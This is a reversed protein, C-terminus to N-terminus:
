GTAEVHLIAKQEEANLARGTRDFLQVDRPKGDEWSFSLSLGGKVRLGKLEGCQWEPASPLAPLLRIRPRGDRDLESQVLMRLIGALAGFNGDIQFPPHNDLLNPLTSNLLINRVAEGAEDGRDLSAWFNIIWAQSWGTHGGGFSLRKRLTKEAAAALDPTRGPSISSGPFLGYLHSIHRHGKEVEEYEANWEMLSGDANLGPAKLHNLVYEFSQFDDGPYSRGEPDAAQGGSDRIAAGARICCSFLQTLIMSDMQCGQCFCGTRGDELRYSNEPSASPNLVLFPRGDQARGASESPELFDVFFLCAEHILYYYRALISVDQGYEYHEWIHTALWAAGLVWYSGPLWADQPAADGWFDTNHHVVYGRCGYMRRAVDKGNAYTRELLAFLPLECEALAAMNAPWYNMQANINVTYKSGWPPDMYCNWLGQLTLPLRGPERSGAIMLYRSFAAYLNVLQIDGGTRFRAFLGEVTPSGAQDAQGAPLGGQRGDTGAPRSGIHLEMRDWYQRYEETHRAFLLESARAVGERGIFDRMQSLREKLLPTWTNCRISAQYEDQSIRRNYQWARIDIFLLVDTCGDGELTFGQARISGDSALAGAGACFPIGHADELLIFGDEARISDCWIGRDLYARFNVKGKQSSRVRMFLMDDAASAWVTREFAAGDADRYDVRVCADDLDLCARYSDLCAQPTKHQPPFSFEIGPDDAQFFDIRLEGATQYAQENFNRGSLRRFALEQAEPIKGCRVLSRVEELGERASDNIRDQPGGSWIGEENLQIVEGTPHAKVMAGLRGNGLPLYHEWVEPPKTFLMKADM